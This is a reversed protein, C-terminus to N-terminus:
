ICGTLIFELQLIAPCYRVTQGCASYVVYNVTFFVVIVFQVIGKSAVYNYYM